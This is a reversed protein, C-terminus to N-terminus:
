CRDEIGLLIQASCVLLTSNWYFRTIQEIGVSVHLRRWDDEVILATTWHIKKCRDEEGVWKVENWIVVLILDLCSWWNQTIRIRSSLIWSWNEITSTNIRCSWILMSGGCRIRVSTGSSEESEAVSVDSTLTRDTRAVRNISNQFETTQKHSRHLHHSINTTTLSSIKSAKAMINSLIQQM